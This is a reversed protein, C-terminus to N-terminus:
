YNYWDIPDIDNIIDKDNVTVEIIEHSSCGVELGCRVYETYYAYNYSYEKDTIEAYVRYTGAALTLEYSFGEYDPDLTGPIEDTCILSGNDMSEACVRQSPIVESPYGIKGRITGENSSVMDEGTSDEKLDDKEAFNQDTNIEEIKDIIGDYEGRFRREVMFISICSCICCFFLLGIISIIIIILKHNGRNEM